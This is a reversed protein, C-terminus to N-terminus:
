TKGSDGLWEALQMGENQAGGNIVTRFWDTYRGVLAAVELAPVNETGENRLQLLATRLGASIAAATWPTYEVTEEGPSVWYGKRAMLRDVAQYLARAAERYRSDSTASFAAGLGRLVAFQTDVSVSSAMRVKEGAVEAGDAYLGDERRLQTLIFDAQAKLLSLAAKGQATGLGGAGAEASAYGVPLADVAKQYVSLAVLAYAADYTTVHRGPKGDWRDVLTGAKRDFHLAHLNTFLVHSLTRALSFADNAPVDNDPSADRNVAPAAAFPQGDFVARFAPNTAKAADRQDAFAFYEAAPWLLMWVDRLSSHREAVNLGEIALGGELDRTRAELRHPFWVPKTGDYAPTLRVGLSRGDFALREALWRMKELSIETLIVGNLGDVASVGLAHRGDQDMTSSTAEVEEDTDRTHMGGLFDQSWMVEKLWIGGIAAPTIEPRVGERTWRLSAYDRYYAPILVDGDRNVVDTNVPGAFEPLGSAWPLALPYLNLPIEAPSIGVSGALTVFRQGLSKLSGGREANRLGHALHLGLGSQYNLAYMAEESYEYSEIGAVYDFATPKDRVNPDLVDLDLGLAEALPEGSLEFETYALFAGGTDLHKDLVEVRAEAGATGAMTGLVVGLVLWKKGM